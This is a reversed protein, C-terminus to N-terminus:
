NAVTIVSTPTGFDDDGAPTSQDAVWRHGDVLFSYRYRGPRLKLTVSWEGNGRALPDADRRWDNFDGVLAVESSAPVRLAFRVPHIPERPLLSKLAIGLLVVAAALGLWVRRRRREAHLQALTRELARNGSPTSGRLERTLAAVLPDSGPDTFRDPM